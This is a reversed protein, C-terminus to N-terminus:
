NLCEVKWCNDITPFDQRETTIIYTKEQFSFLIELVVSILNKDLLDLTRDIIIMSPSNVIARLIMLLVAEKETFEYQWSSVYTLLGDKFSMIKNTLGLKGIYKLIEDMSVKTKSLVINDYITGALWQPEQLLLTRRRLAMLLKQQCKIGNLIIEYSSDHTLGILNTIINELNSRDLSYILLPSDPNVIIKKDSHKFIINVNDLNDVISTIEDPMPYKEETPLSFLEKFIDLSASLDYYDDLVKVFQNLAYVIGGLIIEAAVLQGLSLQNLIVLYGGLGLLISSAAAALVFFGVQHKILQRFHRNRVKLFKVLRNDTERLLFIALDMFKFLYRNLFIEDFWEAIGHKERCEQVATLRAVKYPALIIVCICILIFLDFMIFYPHYIVLVILGFFIQLSLNIGYSLIGALSKMVVVIDFFKNIEKQNDHALLTRYSLDSFRKTLNVGVNVMVKQQIIEILINHWLNLAGACIILVFVMISLIFIPRLLYGFAIFNVLTQATVPIVLFLISTVMSILVLSLITSSDILNFIFTLKDKKFM